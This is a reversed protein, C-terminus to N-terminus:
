FGTARRYNQWRQNCDVMRQVFGYNTLNPQAKFAQDITDSSRESM